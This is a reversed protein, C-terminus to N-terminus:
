APLFTTVWLEFLSKGTRRRNWPSSAGALQQVGRAVPTDGGDGEVGLSHQTDNLKRLPVM